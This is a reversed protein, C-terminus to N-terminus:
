PSNCEELAGELSISKIDHGTPRQYIRLDFQPVCAIVHDFIDSQISEYNTWNIDGSFAYIELPLGQHTPALQRVMLTMDKRLKPNNKLYRTLYARFVGLNTMRRGNVVVNEDINHQRNYIELEKEKEEIYDRIIQIKKFREIMEKDCFRVSTQDILISRKIRRAGAMKMGRWNKFSNSILKYTPIVTITKDWNQVRITYLAIEIVDGDANFQPVEIWDGVRVLDNAVIQIGAVFSLITDKFVLLLLATMAGLGSLLAWPSQGLFYCIIVISVALYLFLKLIQIYGKIPWRKSMPHMNYIELGASLLRDFIFAIDLVVFPYVLKLLTDPFDPISNGLYNFVLAPVLLALPVFVKNKLLVDDWKNRTKRLAAHILRIIIYRVIFYSILCCALIFLSITLWYLTPSDKLGSNFIAALLEQVKQELLNRPKM